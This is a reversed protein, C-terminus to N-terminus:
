SCIIGHGKFFTYDIERYLNPTLKAQKLLKILDEKPMNRDHYSSSEPTYDKAIQDYRQLQRKRDDNPCTIIIQGGTKLCAKASVLSRLIDQDNMHELIDGLIVTDFKGHLSEPLDRADALIDVKNKVGNPNEKLIDVNAAGLEKLKAPDTDCGVNLIKGKAHMLQFNFQAIYERDPNLGSAIIEWQDVRREWNYKARAWPMMEGRILEQLEHQSSLRVIEAAFKSHTLPDEPDGPIAIGHGINEGQAWVPSFVPIAGMAQAEMCTICSTEAFNTQYVWLGSKFWEEYLQPQTIRGHWHVGPQRSLQLIEKKLGVFYSKPNKKILVDINNFGYFIHLQLDPVYERAKKFSILLPKLGRDPSSAYIIRKPNRKIKKKEIEEILDLKIGNATLWVHDKAAPYKSLLNKKHRECMAIISDFQKIRENTWNPYDWDQMLLWVTQDKRKDKKPFKDITTPDRYIVWIGPQKFTAKELPYWKTGRWDEPCDDPIDTYTIVKHGRAALRWAMEVHSTESGGIGKEVSSRYDWKEFCVPSYLYFDM